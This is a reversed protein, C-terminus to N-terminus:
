PAVLRYGIGRVTVIQLAQGLKRRLAVLHMDLTKTSSDWHLDWIDALLRDRTVVCSAERVLYLLLQFEKPRLDMPEGAVTATYGAPEIRLDGLVITADPDVGDTARLQARVRAILVSMSFPKTVYDNAGADLGVVVDIDADRATVIVIPLEPHQSRLQRCLAFGDIDPLGADLLVLDPFDAAVSAVAAEGTTCLVCRLGNSELAVQISAGISADDEITLVHKERQTM